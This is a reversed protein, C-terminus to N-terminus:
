KAMGGRLLQMRLDVAKVGPVGQADKRALEFDEPAWVYGGLHVVGQNVSIDVHRAYLQPDSNLAVRVQHAISSDAAREGPYPPQGTACAMLGFAAVLSAAHFVRTGYSEAPQEQRTGM